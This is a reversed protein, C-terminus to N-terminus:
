VNLIRGQKQKQKIARAKTKTKRRKKKNMSATLHFAKFMLWVYRLDHQYTSFDFFIIEDGTL